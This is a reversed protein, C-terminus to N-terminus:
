ISSGWPNGPGASALGILLTIGIVPVAIVGITLVTSTSKDKTLVKTIEQESLPTKVQEDWDTYVGYYVGDENAIYDYKSIEGNSRTIQTKIRDQSAHELTTPTKHYVVCSQFLLLATLLLAITKLRKPIAEMVRMTIYYSLYKLHAYIVDVDLYIVDGVKHIHYLVLLLLLQV